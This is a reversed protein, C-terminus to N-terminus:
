GCQVIGLLNVVTDSAELALFFILPKGWMMDVAGPDPGLQKPTDKGEAGFRREDICGEILPM